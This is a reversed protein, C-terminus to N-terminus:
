GLFMELNMKGIHPAHVYINIMRGRCLLHPDGSVGLLLVGAGLHGGLRAERHSVGSVPPLNNNMFVTPDQLPPSAKHSAHFFPFLSSFLSFHPLFPSKQNRPSEHFVDCAHLTWPHPLSPAENSGMM